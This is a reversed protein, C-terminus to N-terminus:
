GALVAGEKRKRRIGYVVDYGERWKELMSGILQPPDQLDADLQIAADGRCKLYGTLISRQFGFNRSFRYVRIRRDDQAYQALLEFTRDTSCNDTFVFEFDYDRLAATVRNLETLLRPINDEENYVPVVISILRSGERRPAISSP